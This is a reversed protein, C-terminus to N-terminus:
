GLRREIIATAIKLTENKDDEQGLRVRRQKIVEILRDAERTFEVEDQYLEEIESDKTTPKKAM